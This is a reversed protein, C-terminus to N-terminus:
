NNKKAQLARLYINGKDIEIHIKGGGGNIQSTLILVRNALCQQDFKSFTFDSEFHAERKPDESLPVYIEIDAGMTEPVYLTVDGERSSLSCLESRSSNKNMVLLINGRTVVKSYEKVDMLKVDGGLNNVIEVSEASGVIIEGLEAGLYVHKNAKDVNINGSGTIAKIKGKAEGIEIDGIPTIVDLNGDIRRIKVSGAAKLEANGYINEIQFGGRPNAMKMSGRHDKITIDEFLRSPSKENATQAQVSASSVLSVVSMLVAMIINIRRRDLM